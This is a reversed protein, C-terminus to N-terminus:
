FQETSQAQSRRLDNLEQFRIRDQAFKDITRERRQQNHEILSNLNSRQHLYESINKELQAPVARNSTVYRQKRALAESIKTDLKTIKAQTVRIASDILGVREDRLKDIQEVNAFTVLLANDRTRELQRQKELVRNKQAELREIRIQQPTKQPEVQRIELGDENLVKHGSKSDTPPVTDSYIVEGQQNIWRYVEAHLQHTFTILFCLLIARKQLWTIMM